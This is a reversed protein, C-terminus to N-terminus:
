RETERGVCGGCVHRGGVCFWGMRVLGHAALIEHAPPADTGCTDCRVEVRTAGTIEDTVTRSSM